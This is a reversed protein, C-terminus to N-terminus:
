LGIARALALLEGYPALGLGTGAVAQWLTHARSRVRAWLMTAVLVGGGVLIGRGVGPTDLVIGPVHAWVFVLTAV